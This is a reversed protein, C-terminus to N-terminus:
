KVYFRKHSTLFPLRLSGNKSYKKSFKTYSGNHQIPICKLLESMQLYSKQIRRYTVM